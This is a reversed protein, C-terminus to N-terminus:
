RKRLISKIKNLASSCFLHVTSKAKLNSKKSTSNVINQIDQAIQYYVSKKYHNITDLYPMSSNLHCNVDVIFCNNANQSVFFALADNMEAHRIHRDKYIDKIKGPYPVSATNLFILKTDRPLKNRIQQLNSIFNEKSVPGVPIFNERFFNYQKSEEAYNIPEPFATDWKSKITYDVTYQGFPLTLGNENRYLGLTCDMMTSFVIYDWHKTFMKSDFYEDDIFPIHQQLWIKESKSLKDILLVQSSHNFSEVYVGQKSISTYSFETQININKEFYSLVQSADCPGKMLIQIGNTENGQENNKSEISDLTIWNPIGQNELSSIVNGVVSLNPYGLHAYVFQEVGMGITRCSFLFHELTNNGLKLAYFGIIGYECFRDRCKIYACEYESSQLLLDLENPQIRKKTFNLQNTRNIMELIRDKESDCDKCILIRIDSDRLFDDNSSFNEKVREREELEKYQYFRRLTDDARLSVIQENIEDYIDNVDACMISDDVALCSQLNAPEDDLFLTNAPRLGMTKITSFVRNSKSTWDISPFVFSDWIGIENLKNKCQEFDNKSCISSIIGRRNLEKVLLVHKQIVKIDEESIIGKWFTNDLDWIVLKVKTLDLDKRNIIM